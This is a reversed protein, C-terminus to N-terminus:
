SPFGDLDIRRVLAFLFPLDVVRRVLDFMWLRVRIRWSHAMVNVDTDLAM